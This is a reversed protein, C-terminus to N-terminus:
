ATGPEASSRGETSGGNESQTAKIRKKIATYAPMHVTVTLGPMDEGPHSDSVLLQGHHIEAVASVRSLGLGNGPLARSKGGRYFRQFVQDKEDDPIGIGSDRVEFVAAAGERRVAVVIGGHEPTYKFIPLADHLSLTSSATPAAASSVAASLALISAP